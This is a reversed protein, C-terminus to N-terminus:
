RLHKEIWDAAGYGRARAITATPEFAREVQTFTLPDTDVVLACSRAPAHRSQGVSGPNVLRPRRDTSLLPRHTQGFAILDYDFGAFRFREIRDEYLYDSLPRWPSGHCLLCSIGAVDGGWCWPLSALWRRHDPDILRDALDIGFRVAEPAEAPCGHLLFHDHNGLVAIPDLERVRDLVPNVDAYYGVFDGLCVVRDASELVDSLVALAARNAHLDSILVIRM